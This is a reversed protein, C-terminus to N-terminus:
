DIYMLYSHMHKHIGLSIHMYVNSSEEVCQIHMYCTRHTNCKYILFNPIYHAHPLSQRNVQKLKTYHRIIVHYAPLSPPPSALLQTARRSTNLRRTAHHLPQTTWSQITSGDCLQISTQLNSYPTTIVIMRLKQSNRQDIFGQRKSLLCFHQLLVRILLLYSENVTSSLPFSCSAM